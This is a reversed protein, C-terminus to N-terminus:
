LLKRYDGFISAASFFSESNSDIIDITEGTVPHPFTIRYCHLFLRDTGFVESLTRNLPGKGYTADGIIPHSIFKLHRRIQHRRGTNLTLLVLSLRTASFKGYPIPLETSALTRLRTVADQAQTKQVRLYPDVPPKLPHDITCNEQTFGRVIALYHKKFITHPLQSLVSATQPDFAFLLIGSTGRDLRYVPWVKRGFLERALQLAFYRDGNAIETRHTLLKEPKSVLALVDDRYLVTLRPEEEKRGEIKKENMEEKKPVKRKEKREPNEQNKRIERTDPQAKPIQIANM